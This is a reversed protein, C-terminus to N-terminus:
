KKEKSVEINKIHEKAMNEFTYDYIKKISNEKMMKVLSDDNLLESIKQSLENVDDVNVIYGNVNNEVLELGAICKNTTIIPCGNAMAENIVLGWIDERTPLVFIDSVKLYEYIETKPLFNIFHINNLNYKSILAKYEETVSGGIIYIGFNDYNIKSAAEILVDFGKRYIFQGVSVIIKNENLNYKERLVNKEKESIPQKIIDKEFLSTFPYRIINESKAGYHLYYKDSERSTSFCKEAHSIIHKKIIEKINKNTKPFGGDTEIIIKKKKKILYMALLMETPSSYSSIVIKDYKIKNVISMVKLDLSSDVGIKIGGLFIAKFNDIKFNEWSKDRESSTKREFIVTLDCLKGFENFFDVRYPSPVNTIWLIKM